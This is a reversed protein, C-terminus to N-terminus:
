RRKETRPAAEAGRSVVVRGGKLGQVVRTEQCGVCGDVSSHFDETVDHLNKSFHAHEACAQVSINVRRNKLQMNRM